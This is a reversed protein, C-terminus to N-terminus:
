QQNYERLPNNEPFQSAWAEIVTRVGLLNPVVMNVANKVDKETWTHDDTTFMQTVNSATGGFKNFVLDVTPNGLIIGSALGTSRGYKFVADMGAFGRLTDITAPVLAAASNRQFASKAINDLSLRKDLEEDNGAYNMSTQAVYGLGAFLTSALFANATSMDRHHLSYLTQKAHAVLMFGRFQTLIKGIQTHMWPATEGITNEQVVRRSERWVALRFTEYTDPSEVQWKEWEITDVKSTRGSVKSYKKLDRFVATRNEKTIGAWALKNFAKDDLKDLGRAYDSFKQVFARSSIQRLMNTIPALGSVMAVAHRGHALAAEAKTLGVNFMMDDAARAHPHMSAMEAGLGAMNVLDRSLQDDLTGGKAQRIIGRVGPMHLSFARWGAYGLTNGIEALQAFGVQGMMRIFNFDRIAKLMREQTGYVEDSMPRGLIHNYVDQLHKREKQFKTFDGQEMAEKMADDMLREFDADSRIGMKALGVMGTTQRTYLDMLVRADNEFFDEIGVEEAKGDIQSTLKMRYNENFLTRSKLRGSNGEVKGPKQLTMDLIEDMVDRDVGMKEAIEKLRARGADGMRLKTMDEFPIARVITVYNKAIKEAMEDTVPRISRIAGKVLKVLQAEGFQKTMQVIRDHNFRRMMYFPDPDISEAGKVGYKKMQELIEKHIKQIEMVAKGVQPHVYQSTSYDRVARTVMKNFEAQKLQRQLMNWGQEKAYADFADNMVISFQGKYKHWDISALESANLGRGAHDAEGVPDSLLAKAIRSVQRNVSSTLQAYYDYRIPIRINTFPIRIHTFASKTAEVEDVKTGQEVPLIQASGVSGEPMFGEPTDVADDFLDENDLVEDVRVENTNVRRTKGTIDDEIVMAGTHTNYSKVRGSLIEGDPTEVTIDDGVKYAPASDKAVAERAESAAQKIESRAKINAEIQYASEENSKAQNLWRVEGTREYKERLTKAMARHKDVQKEWYSKQPAREPTAKNYQSEAFAKADKKTKFNGLVMYRDDGAEPMLRVMWTKGYKEVYTKGYIEVPEGAVTGKTWAAVEATNDPAGMPKETAFTQVVGTDEVPTAEPGEKQTITIDEPQDILQQERQAYALEEERLRNALQEEEFRDWASKAKPDLRKVLGARALAAQMPGELTGRETAEASLDPKTADVADRDADLRAAEEDAQKQAWLEDERKVRAELKAREEPSLPRRGKPTATPIGEGTAKIGAVVEETAVDAQENLRAKIEEVSMVRAAPTQVVSTVGEEDLAKAVEEDVDTIAKHATDTLKTKEAPKLLAAIGGGMGFGLLGAFAVDSADRSEQVKTLYAEYAANTFGAAAGGSLFRKFRSAKGLAALPGTTASLAWAGPDILSIGIQAAIGKGGAAQLTSLTELEKLIQNRKYEAHAKSTATLLATHYEPPLDKTLRKWEEPEAPNYIPDPQFEQAGLQHMLAAVSSESDWAAQIVDQLKPGKAPLKAQQDAVREGVRLDAYLDDLPADYWSTAM